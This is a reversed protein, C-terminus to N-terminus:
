RLLEDRYALMEEMLQQQSVTTPQQRNWGILEGISDYLTGTSATIVIPDTDALTDGRYAGHGFIDSLILKSQASRNQRVAKVYAFLGQVVPLGKKDHAGYLRNGGVRRVTTFLTPANPELPNAGPFSRQDPVKIGQQRLLNFHWFATQAGKLFAREDLGGYLRQWNEVAIRDRPFWRLLVGPHQPLTLIHPTTRELRQAPN